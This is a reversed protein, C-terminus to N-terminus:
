QYPSTPPPVGELGSQQQSVNYNKTGNKDWNVIFLHLLHCCAAVIFYHLM